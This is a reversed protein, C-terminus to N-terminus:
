PDGYFLAMEKLILKTTNGFIAIRIGSYEVTSDAGLLEFEEGTDSTVVKGHGADSFFIVIRRDVGMEMPVASVKKEFDYIKDARIIVTSLKGNRRASIEIYGQEDSIDVQFKLELTAPFEPVPKMWVDAWPASENALSLILGEPSSAMKMVAAGTGTILMESSEVRDKGETFAERFVLNDENPKTNEDGTANGCFLVGMLLAIQGLAPKSLCRSLVKM